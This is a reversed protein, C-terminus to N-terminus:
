KGDVGVPLHADTHNGLLLRESNLFITQHPNPFVGQEFQSRTLAGSDRFADFAANLREATHTRRIALHFVPVPLARNLEKTMHSVKAGRDYSDFNWGMTIAFKTGM